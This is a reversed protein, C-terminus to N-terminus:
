WTVRVKVTTEVNNAHIILRYPIVDGITYEAPETTYPALAELTFEFEDPIGDGLQFLVLIHVSRSEESETILPTSTVLLSLPIHM